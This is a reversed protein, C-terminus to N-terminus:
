SSRITRLGSCSVETQRWAICGKEPASRGDDERRNADIAM